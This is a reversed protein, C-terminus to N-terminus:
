RLRDDPAFPYPVVPEPRRPVAPAAFLVTLNTLEPDYFRHDLMYLMDNGVRLCDMHEYVVGITTHARTSGVGDDTYTAAVYDGARFFPFEAM